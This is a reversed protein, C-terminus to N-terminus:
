TKNQTANTIYCSGKAPMAELIRFLTRPHPPTINEELLYATCMEVLLDNLRRRGHRFQLVSGLMHIRRHRKYYQHVWKSPLPTAWTPQGQGSGM